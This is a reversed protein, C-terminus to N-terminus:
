RAAAAIEAAGCLIANAGTQRVTCQPTDGIAIDAGGKVSIRAPGAVSLKARVPGEGILELAGLALGLGEILGDGLM